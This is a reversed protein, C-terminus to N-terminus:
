CGVLLGVVFAFFSLLTVHHGGEVQGALESDPPGGYTLDYESLALAVRSESDSTEQRPEVLIFSETAIVAEQASRSDEFLRVPAHESLFSDDEVDLEYGVFSEDDPVVTSIEDEPFGFDIVCVPSSPEVSPFGSEM